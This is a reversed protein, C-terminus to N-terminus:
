EVVKSRLSALINQFEQEYRNLKNSIFLQKSWAAANEYGHNKALQDFACKEEPTDAYWYIRKATRLKDSM